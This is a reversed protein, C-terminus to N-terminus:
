DNQKNEIVVKRAKGRCELAKIVRSDVIFEGAELRKIWNFYEETKRAEYAESASDESEFQGLYTQTGNICIQSIWKCKINCFHVGPKGHRKSDIGTLFNNLEKPVLVCTDESYLKNNELLLDKDLQYDKERYGVQNIYWNTFYQFCKFEKSVTCGKYTPRRKQYAGGELCRVNMDAWKRYSKTSIKKSNEKYSKLWNGDVLKDVYIIANSVM